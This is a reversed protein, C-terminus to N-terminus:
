FESNLAASYDAVTARGTLQNTRPQDYLGRDIRRLALSTLMRQITKDVAERQGLDLFDSPTWVKSAPAGSIREVVQSKLIPTQKDM